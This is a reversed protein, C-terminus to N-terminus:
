LSRARPSRCGPQSRLLMGWDWQGAHCMLWCLLASDVGRVQATWQGPMPQITLKACCCDEYLETYSTPLQVAAAREAVLSPLQLADEEPLTVASPVGGAGAAAAAHPVPSVGRKSGARGAAAGHTPSPSRSCAADASRVFRADIAPSWAALQVCRGEHTDQRGVWGGGAAAGAARRTSSGSSAAAEAASTAATIVRQSSKWGPKEPTPAESSSTGARELVHPAAGHRYVLDLMLSRHQDQVAAV